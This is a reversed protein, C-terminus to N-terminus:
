PVSQSPEYGLEVAIARPDARHPAPRVKGRIRRVENKAWQRWLPWGFRTVDVVATKLPLADRWKRQMYRYAEFYHRDLPQPNRRSNHIVPAEIIYSKLGWARAQQVIDTAYLHFGPLAEDFRLGHKMNLLIVIEDISAAVHPGGGLGRHEQGGGSCWVRGACQGDPCVGWVGAVAWNPDLESLRALQPELQDMWGAPLYVDQHIFAVVGSDIGQLGHVYAAGATASGRTEIVSIRQAQVDPSMLLNAGLTADSSIAAVVSLSESGIEDARVRV